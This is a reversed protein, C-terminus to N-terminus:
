KDKKLEKIEEKLEKVAEILLATLKQYNVAKYGNDRQIVIEPVVKEVEQAIIGIDHGEYDSKDNWDFEVGRIQLVKDVANDIIKINDKFRIDSSHFATVDGTARIAGTVDLISSSYTMGSPLGSGSGSSGNSAATIRGQADVTLNTNTYSGASVSTNALSINGSTTVTGSLGTGTGVSTVTGANSTLGSIRTTVHDYVDNGTPITTTAGDTVAATNVAITQNHAGSATSANGATTVLGTGPTVTVGTIDGGGADTSDGAADVTFTNGAAATVSITRTASSTVNNSGAGNGGTGTIKTFYYVVQNAILSDTVSLVINGSANFPTSSASSSNGALNTFAFHFEFGPESESETQVYYVDTGISSSSNTKTLTRTSGVQTAGTLTASTNKFVQVVIQTPIDNYANNASSTDFGVMGDGDKTLTVTVNQATSGNTIKQADSAAEGSVTKSITSVASGTAQAVSTLAEDTLGSSKDFIKTGDSTFIDFGRIVGSGDGLVKLPIYSTTTDGGAQFVTGATSSPTNIQVTKSGTSVNLAIGSTSGLTTSTASLAGDQTVRFPANVKNSLTTGAFIRVTDAIPSANNGGDLGAVNTSTGAIISTSSSIQDGGIANDKIKINGSDVELFNTNLPVKAADLKITTSNDINDFTSKVNELQQPSFTSGDPLNISVSDKINGSSDIIEDNKFDSEAISTFASGDWRPIKGATGFLTSVNAGFGGLSLPLQSDFSATGTSFSLVGTKTSIDEGFGGRTKPLTARFNPTGSSFDVVGTKNAVSEGFGGGAKSVIGAISALDPAAGTGGDYRLTGDAKIKIQANKLANKARLTQTGGVDAVELDNSVLNLNSLDDKVQAHNTVLNLGVDANDLSITASNANTLSITGNASKALTVKENNVKVNATGIGVLKGDSDVTVKGNNVIVDATGINELKGSTTNVTINSNKLADPAAQTNIVTSAGKKLRVTTGSYDIQLDDNKVDADDLPNDNSDKLNTGAIAGVTAGDDYSLGLNSKTVDVTTNTTGIGAVTIRGRNADGNTTNLSIGITNNRISNTGDIPDTGARLRGFRTRSLSDLVDINSFTSAGDLKFGFVGDTATVSDFEAKNPKVSFVKSNNSNVLDAEVIKTNSIITNVGTGIGTLKGDNDITVKQNNVVVDATGIGTLKGNSDVTVKENSLVKTNFAANAGTIKGDSDISITQNKLTDPVTGTKYATTSLATVGFRARVSTDSDFDIEFDDIDIIEFKGGVVRVDGLSRTYSGAYTSENFTVDVYAYPTTGISTSWSTPLNTCAGTDFNYTIADRQANSISPLTAGFTWSDYYIRKTAIRAVQAESQLVVASWDGTAISVASIGAAASASANCTWLYQASGTPVSQTWGDNIASGTLAGTSFTFSSSGSPESPASNGATRKYIQVNATQTGSAGEKIRLLTTEDTDLIESTGSSHRVKVKFIENGLSFSGANVTLTRTTSFAQVTSFSSGNDTSKSFEYQYNGSVGSFFTLPESATLTISSPSPNASSGDYGFTQKTATLRTITFSLKKDINYIKQIVTSGITATLTFSEAETSWSAGALSYVGTSKNITLTLNNQTKTTTTAGVTGGSIGYVVGSTKESAGEFVKFEGDTGTYFLFSGSGFIGGFKSASANENTLVGSLSDEGPDGDAGEKSKTFSQKKVLTISNEVNISYSISAVDATMNTHDAVIVPDGSSSINGTSINTATAVVKFQGTSPTGTTIGNLETTGKFVQITTGSGSFSTVAGSSNAPLTHAENTLIATIADAGTGGDKIAGIGISDFAIETTDADAEAVGVRLIKTTNFFSTPISFTFADSDGSGDSYSTENTIGDGTFKFYPDIFNKATATLTLTGSPSPNADSADYAIVYGSSTLTVVKADTGASGTLGTRSKSISYTQDLNVAVGSPSINSPITARFVNVASDVSLGTVSYVGTSANIASTLGSTEQGAVEAFSCSTTRDTTGVFVKFTGGAGTFGSVSGDKDASLTHSNNTLFATISDTGSRVGFITVSDSAKLTGGSGPDGDFLQVTVNVTNDAAPEDSDALTFTTTTATQKTAGGVLFRYYTSGSFGGTGQTATTFSVTTNEGGTASYSVVHSSPTLKIAIADQGLSGSSGDKTVTIPVLETFSESTGSDTAVVKIFKNATNHSFSSADVTATFPASSDVVSTSNNTFVVGDSATTSGDADVLTFTVSSATINRLTATFTVDQSSGGPTLANLSNFKVQYSSIDVDLQPSLVNAVGSVGADINSEFVSLLKVLANDSTRRSIRRHRVWYYYTGAVGVADNFTTANDVVTLLTAHDPITGSSGQSTARWIETSDTAEKYGVTNTWNLTIIGPKASGTTLNTPAGPAQLALNGGTAAAQAISARQATIAYITDNYERAKITTNCNSNYTLNEIRFLKNEFGFPPYSFSIVEGPKLLLGKPGVTFSIERSYRSQILEKEVSIRANYYSTIGTLPYSGTKVKGRDAKLFDSNFFSVARSSFNNQPDSISAKITNKANKQSNDNLSITGIIDDETIVEANQEIGNTINSVPATKATEVSLLYKGNSYSLIGNFHSLLANINEFISRETAFIFNTQHRTVAHQRNEEWGLYRWYKVFDSDYLSYEIARGDLALGLTSPGSGSVKTLSVSSIYLLGNTTGTTHTPATAKFGASTVRYYRTTGSVVNYVIDGVNYYIYDLYSRTFKGSVQTLSVSSSNSTSTIVKGSAVHNGSADVLKYIDGAVCSTASSLPITIDSRTDCLLASEKISPLDIDNTIDLDKGFRDNTLMDSLQIAPNISARSDAGKGYIKFTNDSTPTTIFASDIQLLNTSVNFGSVIRKEGTEIIELTSGIIRGNNTLSSIASVNSFDFNTASVISTGNLDQGSNSNQNASYGTGPFVITNSSLLPQFAAKRLNAFIGKGGKFQLLADSTSQSSSINPYFAELKAKQANTLTANLVGVGSTSLTNTTITQDAEPWTTAGIIEHDYTLMYWYNSGSKLRLYKNNGVVPIKDMRFRTYASGEAPTFLYKDLIRYNGNGDSSWSTGNSSVEVTVTDGEKFNDAHASTGNVPDPVYTGDYNYNELVKGKVVYEIEPITTQDAEITFKLVAYATDLLKHDPSWYAKNGSFYDTQRKFQNAQAITTLNNDGAQNPKGQYFTFHMNYPHSISATERHRLGEADAVTSLSQISSENFNQYRRRQSNGLNRYGRTTGQREEANLSYDENELDIFSDATSATNNAGSLTSGQDARGYCQLQTNDKDTGNSANRVDFDSKDTCILPAGDIYMNYIGHVQGEALAYVVYVEKSNNLKTDAFVPIGNIRQVGYLVPLHKGQLHVSLDVENDVQVQYEEMYYKKQGLLGALGGRKKSKMRTRTETTQYTAITNLSSEAHLFGLDSSYEPRITLSSNAKGNADLSRHVEDSTLRGRIEAFDGWHSTLNWQVKSSNPSEQINTSATIGKFVLIPDGYVTGTEPNIFAKYVFVERNVFSPNTFVIKAGAPVRPQEKSLTLTTGNISKVVTEDLVGPGSVLQGKEILSNAAALTVTSTGDATTAVEASTGKEMTAGIYEENILTLTLGTNGTASSLFASDDVDTGTRELAIRENDLEFASIIFDKEKEGDSFNTGNTKTLRVKDGERFGEEFFDINDTDNGRIKGATLFNGTFSFTTGLFEGPLTLSMNTAKAQTTESYGGITLIGSANYTDGDYDLDRQGDTLYVYRNANTRAKGKFPVFPREFKVLHAYEFPEGNILATRLASNSINREAM